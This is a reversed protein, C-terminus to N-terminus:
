CVFKNWNRITYSASEKNFNWLDSWDTDQVALINKGLFYKRNSTNIYMMDILINYPDFSIIRDYFSNNVAYAHAAYMGGQNCWYLNETVKECYNTPEGGLYFMDWELSKLENVYKILENKFGDLFVCDDEFILVNNLKNEKAIKIVAQHSMTCGVKFKHLLTDLDSANRLPPYEGENPTIASFRNPEIGVDKSRKEFKKRRDIRSDLNIYYVDEFFNLYKSM